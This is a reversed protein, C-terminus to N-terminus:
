DPQIQQLYNELKDLTLAGKVVKVIEGDPNIFFTSPIPGISYQDRVKGNEDYPIPFTLDYKEIFRNIVLETSDLSVAIIEVGKDKYEPYLQQMYPMESECPKCYTAWFNLMVGKGALNNLQFIELGNNKNVQKLVFDPAQDGEAVNKKDKTLNSILAYLVAVLLIALIVTRFILRNRKKRKKNMRIQNTNMM